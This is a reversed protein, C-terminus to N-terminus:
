QHYVPAGPQWGQPRSVHWTDTEQGHEGGYKQDISAYLTFGNQEFVQFLNLAVNRSVMTAGGAAAFPYGNLKVEHVGSVSYPQHSQVLPKLAAITTQVVQQPADILRLRDGKSFTVSFWECPAPAPIQQRFFLNDKDGPNRSLDTAIYLIWGFSHLTSMICRTLRRAWIADEGYPM